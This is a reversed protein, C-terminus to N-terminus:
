WNHNFKKYRTPTIELRTSIYHKGPTDNIFRAGVDCHLNLKYLKMNHMLKQMLYLISFTAYTQVEKCHMTLVYAHTHDAQQTSIACAVETAGEWMGVTYCRGEGWIVLISYQNLKMTCAAVLCVCGSVVVM